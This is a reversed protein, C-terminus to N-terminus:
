FMSSNLCGCTMDDLTTGASVRASKSDKNNSIVWLMRFPYPARRSQDVPRANLDRTSSQHAEREGVFSFAKRHPPFIDDFYEAEKRVEYQM